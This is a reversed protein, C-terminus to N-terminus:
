RKFRFTTTRRVVGNLMERMETIREAKGTKLAHKVANSITRQQIGMTEAVEIITFGEGTPPAVKKMESLLEALGFPAKTTTAISVTQVNKPPRRTKTM